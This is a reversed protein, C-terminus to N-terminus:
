SPSNKRGSIHCEEVISIWPATNGAAPAQTKQASGCKGTAKLWDISSPVFWCKKKGYRTFVFEPSAKGKKALELGCPALREWPACRCSSRRRDLYNRGMRLVIGILSALDNSSQEVGKPVLMVAYVSAADGAAPHQNSVSVSALHNCGLTM